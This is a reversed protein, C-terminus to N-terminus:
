IGCSRALILFAQVSGIFVQSFINVCVLFLSLMGNNYIYDLNFSKYPFPREPSCRKDVACQTFSYPFYSFYANNYNLFFTLSSCLPEPLFVRTQYVYHIVQQHIHFAFSGKHKTQEYYIFKAYTYLIGRSHIKIVMYNNLFQHILVSSTM